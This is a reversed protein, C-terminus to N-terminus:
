YSKGEAYRVRRSHRGNGKNRSKYTPTQSHCNPCILCVNEPSNNSSDGNIHDIELSIPASNWESIGCIECKYGRMLTIIRRLARNSCKLKGSLWIASKKRLANEQQCSNSCYMGLTNKKRPHTTGCNLCTFKEKELTPEGAWFQVSNDPNCIRRM